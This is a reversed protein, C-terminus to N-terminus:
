SLEDAEVIWRRQDFARAQVLIQAVVFRRSQICLAGDREGFRGREFRSRQRSQCAGRARLPSRVVCRPDSFTNRPRFRADLQRSGELLECPEVLRLRQEPRDRSGVGAHAERHADPQAPDGPAASAVVFGLALQPGRDLVCLRAEAGLRDLRRRREVRQPHDELVRTSEVLADREVLARERDELSGDPLYMGIDGRDVVVEAAELVRPAVELFGLGVGAAGDLQTPLRRAGLMRGDRLVLGRPRRDEVSEAAAVLRLRQQAVRELHQLACEPRLMRLHGPRPVVERRDQLSAAVQACGLLGVAPRELGLLPREPSIMGGDRDSQVVECDGRASPSPRLVRFAEVPVRQRNEGTAHLGIM